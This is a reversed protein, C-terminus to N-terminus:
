WHVYKRKWANRLVRRKYIELESISTCINASLSLPLSLSSKGLHYVEETAHPSPAGYNEKPCITMMWDRVLSRKILFSSVVRWNSSSDYQKGATEKSFQLSTKVGNYRRFERKHVLYLFSIRPHFEPSGGWGWRRVKREAQNIQHNALIGPYWHAGSCALVLINTCASM